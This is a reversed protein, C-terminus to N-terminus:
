YAHEANKRSFLAIPTMLLIYIDFWISWNEIYELDYKVRNIIKEYTDTEGRWGNIQAWGTIGPKVKHRAFYGDVVEQYLADAAKAQTAHPRPGVLSLEGKLVNFLQPLEDLSTKRIFRGVRTVRPDDKTVLRSANADCRDVYMSRFKYVEILENNFGYRKQRFLVPGPSELKIALAVAAMVPAFLILLLAAVVRDFVEKVFWGWTGLPKDFVALLPLNGLYDYARPSLKLRSAQGSIRIDVPLEWLRKLIHLLREEASLPIAVIVLDVRNHRAYDNLDAIRGLKRYRRIHEPSREDHRDDFLGVIEVDLGPSSELTDIAEEAAEGGGVIAIRLRFAGAKAKPIAWLALGTRSLAMWAGGLVTWCALRQWGSVPLIAHLLAFGALGVLSLLLVAKPINRVPATIASIEYLGAARLVVLTTFTLTLAFFGVLTTQYADRMFPVTLFVALTLLAAFDGIKVLRQIIEPAIYATKAENAQGDPHKRLNPGEKAVNPTAAPKGPMFADRALGRDQDEAPRRARDTPAARGGHMERMSPSFGHMTQLAKM